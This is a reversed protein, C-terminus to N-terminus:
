SNSRCATWLATAVAAFPYMQTASPTTIFVALRSGSYRLATFPLRNEMHSLLQTGRYIFLM